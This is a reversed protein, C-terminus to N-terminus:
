SHLLHKKQQTFECTHRGFQFPQNMQRQCHRFRLSSMVSSLRLTIRSLFWSIFGVAIKAFAAITETTVSVVLHLIDVSVWVNDRLTPRQSHFFTVFDFFACYKRLALWPQPRFVPLPYLDINRWLERWRKASTCHRRRKNRLSLVREISTFFVLKYCPRYCSVGEVAAFVHKVGPKPVNDLIMWLLNNQRINKAM